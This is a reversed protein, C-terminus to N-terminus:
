AVEAGCFPCYRAIPPIGMHCNKCIRASFLPPPPQSRQKSEDLIRSITMLEKKLTSVYERRANIANNVNMTVVVSLAFNFIAEMALLLIFIERSLIPHSIDMRLLISPIWLLMFLSMSPAIYAWFGTLELLRRLFGGMLWAIALLLALIKVRTSPKRGMYLCADDNMRIAYYIRFVDFLMSSLAVLAAYRARPFFLQSSEKELEERFSSPINMEEELHVLARRLAEITEKEESIISYLERALLYYLAFVGGVPAM